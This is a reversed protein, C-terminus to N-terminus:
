VFPVFVVSTGKLLHSVALPLLDKGSGTPTAVQLRQSDNHIENMMMDIM